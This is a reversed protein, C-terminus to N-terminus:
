GPWGTWARAPPMFSDLASSCRAGLCKAVPQVATAPVPALAGHVSALRNDELGLLTLSTLSRLANVDEVRNRALDLRGLRRCTALAGPCVRVHCYM